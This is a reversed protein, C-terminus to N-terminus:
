SSISKNPIESQFASFGKFSEFVGEGGSWYQSMPNWICLNDKFVIGGVVGEGGNERDYRQIVRFNVQDGKM